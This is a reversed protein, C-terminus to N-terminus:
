KSNLTVLYEQKLRRISTSVLNYVSKVSLNMTDSIEENRFGLNFKLFLIEQQRSTLSRIAKRLLYRTENLQFTVYAEPIISLNELDSYDNFKHEQSLQKFIRRRFSILLYSRISKSIQIKHRGDWLQIFMDQLCDEVLQRDTTLRYGYSLLTKINDEYITKFSKRCGSRFGEWLDFDINSHCEKVKNCDKVKIRSM